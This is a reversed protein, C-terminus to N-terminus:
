SWIDIDSDAPALHGYSREVVQVGDGLWRAVKYISKGQSVMNSAFSRRSDHISCTVGCQKMLGYWATKFDTRYQSKGNGKEPRLAYGEPKKGALYTTLFAKFQPSLPVTRNDGDKMTYGEDPINQAHLLGAHLDFWNVKAAVIESRRLGCHFGCYLAFTLDPDSSAGIVRVVNEKRLWNKRGTKAREPIEFDISPTLLKKEEALWMVFTHLSRAYTHVTDDSKNDKELRDIWGDISGLSFDTIGQVGTDKLFKLLIAKQREATGPRMPKKRRKKAMALYEEVLKTLPTGVPTADLVRMWEGDKIKKIAEIAEALVDTKLSVARRKGDRGTWRYWFYKSGQMKYIGPINM